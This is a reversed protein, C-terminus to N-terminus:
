RGCRQISAGARQSRASIGVAAALREAQAVLQGRQQYPLGPLPGGDDVVAFVAIRSAQHGDLAAPPRRAQLPVSQPLAGGLFLLPQRPPRQEQRPVEENPGIRRHLHQIRRGHQGPVAAAPLDFQAELPHLREQAQPLKGLPRLGTATGPQVPFQQHGQQQFSQEVRGLM